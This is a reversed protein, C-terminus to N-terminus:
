EAVEAIRIVFNKTLYSRANQLFDQLHATQNHADIAAQDAWNEVIMFKNEDLGDILYTYFLNGQDQRSKEVLNKLYDKFADRKAPDVDCHVNILIM